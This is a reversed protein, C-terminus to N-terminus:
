DTAPTETALSPRSQDQSNLRSPFPMWGLPQMLDTDIMEQTVSHAYSWWGRSEPDPDFDCGLGDNWWCLRVIDVTASDFLILIETDDKPATEMPLWSASCTAGPCGEGTEQTAANTEKPPTNENIM